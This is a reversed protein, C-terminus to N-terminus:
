GHRLPEPGPWGGDPNRAAAAFGSGWFSLALLLLPFRALWIPARRVDCRLVWLLSRILRAACLFPVLVAHESVAAGSM